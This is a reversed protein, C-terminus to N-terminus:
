REQYPYRAEANRHILISAGSIMYSACGIDLLRLQRSSSPVPVGKLRSSSPHPVPNATM